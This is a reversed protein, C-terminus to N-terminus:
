EVTLNIKPKATLGNKLKIEITYEGLEKMHKPLIVQNKELEIGTKDKVREIVDKEHISGFIKNKEGVKVKIAFTRKDLDQKQAQAQALLKQEKAKQQRQENDIKSIMQPTAAVAFGKGILFNRAYGDNFEKVEGKKAVGSLEKTFVVKM